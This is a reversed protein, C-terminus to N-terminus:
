IAAMMQEGERETVHGRSGCRGAYAFTSGGGGRKRKKTLKLFCTTMRFISCVNLHTSDDLSSIYHDLIAALQSWHIIHINKIDIGVM